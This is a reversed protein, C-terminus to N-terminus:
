EDAGERTAHMASEIYEAFEPDTEKLRSLHVRIQELLSERDPLALLRAAAQGRVLASPDLLADKVTELARDNRDALRGLVDIASRRTFQNPSEAAEILDLVRDSTLGEIECLAYIFAVRVEPRHSTRLQGALAQTADRAAPGFAALSIAVHIALPEEIFFDRSIAVPCLADDGLLPVLLFLVDAAYEKSLGAAEDIAIRRVSVDPDNIALAIIQLRRVDSSAVDFLSAVVAVRVAAEGDTMAGRLSQEILFSDSCIRPIARAAATRVATSRDNLGAVVAECKESAATGYAAVADIAARRVEPEAAELFSVVMDLVDVPPAAMNAMRRLTNLQIDPTSALADQLDRVRTDQCESENAFGRGAIVVLLASIYLVRM